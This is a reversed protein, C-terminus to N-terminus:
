ALTAYGNSLVTVDRQVARTVFWVCKEGYWLRTRLTEGPYVPASFDAAFSRMAGVDYDCSQALVVHCIHGWTSLGHMIPGDFGQQRAVTPDFHIQSRGGLLRYILAVQPSTPADVIADPARDPARPLRQPSGQPAGNIRFDRALSIGELQALLENSQADRLETSTVILTANRSPKDFVEKIRYDAKLTAASPLPAYMTMRQSAHLLKSWDVGLALTFDINWAAVTAFSPMVLPSEDRMFALQRANEHDWGLGIGVSYLQVRACDYDHVQALSQHALVESYERM